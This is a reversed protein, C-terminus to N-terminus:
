IKLINEIGRDSAEPGLLTLSVSNRTFLANSLEQVERSSVAEIKEALVEVPIFENFHIENQALRVMQNDVSEAALMINGKLFEKADQLTEEDVPREKLTRLEKLVLRITEDTKQPDVGAYIGLLGSDEYTSIFSYVSYALAQRERIEQFLRSSMNGGLITNLLSFAFRGPDATPLGKAALLLHSQELPKFHVAIQAHENPKQRRPFGNGKEITEFSAGV